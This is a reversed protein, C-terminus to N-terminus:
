VLASNSKSTAFSGFTFGVFGGLGGFGHTRPAADGRSRRARVPAASAVPAVTDAARCVSAV